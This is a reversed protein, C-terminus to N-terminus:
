PDIPEYPNIQLSEIMPYFEQETDSLRNGLKYPVYKLEKECRAAMNSIYSSADKSTSTICPKDFPIGLRFIIRACNRMNTTTHRAHPEMIVASEPLHLSQVLFKKMEEAECYRTKYPHVKGGSVMVFPALGKFYQVAAIRCRIMGESSLAVNPEEPGAGLILILAYKYNNWNTTKIKEVVTKNITSSMPEYDAAQNRDNIELFHLACSLSSEFFLSNDKSEHIIATSFDYILNTYTKNKVNFSISDIKPYNPKMGEGYVGICYNIGAADQEWAKILIEEPKLDRFLIYTGSPILQKNVLQRLLINSFYLKTLRASVLKIEQDTFKMTETFCSSEKCEALAKILRQSKDQAIRTLEPDEGLLKKIERNEQFLTLLYYNKSQTVNESQILHYKPEPRSNQAQSFCFSSILVVIVTLTKKM